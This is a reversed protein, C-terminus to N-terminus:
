YIEQEKEYELISAKQDTKAAAAKKWGQKPQTLSEVEKKSLKKLHACAVMNQFEEYSGTSRIARKKMNDIQKYRIDYELSDKIEKTLQSANINGEGDLISIMQSM